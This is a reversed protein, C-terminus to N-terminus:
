LWWSWPCRVAKPIGCKRRHPKGIRGALVNYVILAELYAKYAKLVKPPMGAAEAVRYLMPRRLQDFFKAIDAVGGCYNKDDLKMAEIRTLVEHWADVAGRGPVGAYM